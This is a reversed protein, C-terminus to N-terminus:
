ATQAEAQALASEYVAEFRQAVTDWSHHALVHRHAAEGLRQREDPASLLNTIERTLESVSGPEVLRGNVDHEIVQPIGAIRSAVVARSAAMAELLVNPLGDVNGQADIVSPVALVDCMGYFDPTDRWDIPGPLLVRDSLGLLDIQRALAERLDGGGGIVCYADPHASIVGPMSAVLRDFGKKASLRGLGGVVPASEPIGLKARYSVPPAIRFRECDVGFLICSSM